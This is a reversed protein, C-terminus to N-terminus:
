DQIIKDDQLRIQIQKEPTNLLELQHRNPFLLHLKKTVSDLGYGATFDDAFPAGSDKIQVVLEEVEIRAIITLEIQETGIQYGHKLANEVLPQLLFRPILRKKAADSVEIQFTLQDEFRIKEIKLYTNVMEIEAQLTVLNTGKRNTSYKLFKSLEIAMKETKDADTKALAAITNLSNYLFHPNTKATLAELEAKTKLENLRTIEYDKQNLMLRKQQANLSYILNAISFYLMSFFDIIITSNDEYDFLTVINTEFKGEKYLVLVFQSIIEVFVGSIILGGALLLQYKLFSFRNELFENLLIFAGYFMFITSLNRIFRFLLNLDRVIGFTLADGIIAILFAIVILTIVKNISKKHRFSTKGSNVLWIGLYALTIFALLQIIFVFTTLFTVNHSKSPRVNRNIGYTRYIQQIKDAKNMARLESRSLEFIDSTDFYNPFSKDMDEIESVLLVSDKLMYAGKIIPILDTSDVNGIQFFSFSDNPEKILYIDGARPNSLRQAKLEEETYAENDRKVTGNDDVEIARISDPATLFPYIRHIGFFILLTMGFVVFGIFIKKSKM